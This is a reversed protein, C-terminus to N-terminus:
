ASSSLLRRWIAMWSGAILAVACGFILDVYMPPRGFKLLQAFDPLYLSMMVILTAVSAIFWFISNERSFISVGKPLATSIALVLNGLIMTAFALGRAQDESAGTQYEIVYVSLIALLLVCGQIVGLLIERGGFLTEDKQRPPRLMADKEGPEGEFVLACTPDIVLEMVIVHAPFLLPPLGMIIPLLVLGAIPVHIAMVYTLAKRLNNFIRRGLSVGSIISAFRDDLLIIAASERAVDTGRAGMAIGIHAAALAPGDNVGDGTMAVIHGKAKFAEVISLKMEPTIRAFVRIDRIREPLTEKGILKVMEGTFVGAQTDIGAQRAIELATAPYDGTIMAVAIGARRAIAVSEAAEARIPDEFALLGLFEFPLEDVSEPSEELCATHAVALIRLGRKAVHDIQLKLAKKKELPLACLNFIAEPAGKAAFYFGSSSKWQQIYALRNPRLPYTKEPASSLTLALSQALLHIARDMPDVPKLASARLAILVLPKLKDFNAESRETLKIFEQGLSFETNTMLNQTLTGTKDVCLMSISGFTETAASRRVLVNHQALRWAGLALFIALVMPFEEPMLSIALTIGSIAGEFWDQHFVGYAVVVLLLFFFALLGIKGILIKTTKQLPSLEPDILSLASGIRGIASIEGTRMVQAIGGGQTVLAGSYLYPTDEGGPEPFEAANDLKTSMKTVPASEGTLLSEDVILADGTLLIADAPIRDGESVLILDGPVLEKTPVRQQLGDRICNSVPEAMKRLAQLARETRFEQFVVLSITALAGFVMFLGEGLDGVFLYLAAAVLLLVFMPERLTRQIIDLVSLAPQQPLSNEGYTKLRLTAEQSSLGNLDLSTM